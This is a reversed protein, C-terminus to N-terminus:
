SWIETGTFAGVALRTSKILYVVTGSGVSTIITLWLCDLSTVIVTPAFWSLVLHILVSEINCLQLQYLGDCPKVIDASTRSLKGELFSGRQQEVQSGRLVPPLASMITHIPQDGMLVNHYLVHLYSVSGIHIRNHVTVVVMFYKVIIRELCWNTRSCCFILSMIPKTM